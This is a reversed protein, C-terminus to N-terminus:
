DLLQITQLGNVQVFYRDWRNRSRFRRMRVKPQGVTRESPPNDQVAISAPASSDLVIEECQVMKVVHNTAAKHRSPCSSSSLALVHVPAHSPLAHLTVLCLQLM